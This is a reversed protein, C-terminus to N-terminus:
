LHLLDDLAGFVEQPATDELKRQKLCPSLIVRLTDIDLETCYCRCQGDTTLSGVVSTHLLPACPPLVCMLIPSIVGTRYDEATKRLNWPDPTRLLGTGLHNGCSWDARNVDRACLGFYSARIELSSFAATANSAAFPSNTANPPSVSTFSVLHIGVLVSNASTCGALLLCLLAIM